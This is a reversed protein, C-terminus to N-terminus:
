CLLSHFPMDSPILSLCAEAGQFNGALAAGHGYEFAFPAAGLDRFGLRLGERTQVCTLAAVDLTRTVLKDGHTHVLFARLHDPSLALAARQNETVTISAPDIDIMNRALEQAAEATGTLRRKGLGVVSAILGVLVLTAILSILLPLWNSM